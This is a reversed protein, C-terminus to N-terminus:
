PPVGEVARHNDPGRLLVARRVQEARRRPGDPEARGACVAAVDLVLASFPVSLVSLSQVCQFASFASSPVHVKTATPEGDPGRDPRVGAPPRELQPRSASPNSACVPAASSACACLLAADIPHMASAREGDRNFCRSFPSPPAASHCDRDPANSVQDLRPVARGAAQRATPSLETMKASAREGDRNFCRGFPSPPAASHCDRRCSATGFFGIVGM